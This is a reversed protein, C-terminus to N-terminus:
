EVSYLGDFNVGTKQVGCPFYWTCVEVCGEGAYTVLNVVALLPIKSSLFGRNAPLYGARLKADQEESIYVVYEESCVYLPRHYLLCGSLIEGGLLIGAFLLALRKEKERGIRICVYVVFPLFLVCGIVFLYALVTLLIEM